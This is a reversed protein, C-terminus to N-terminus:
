PEPLRGGVFQVVGALRQRINAFGREQLARVIEEGEFMRMGSLREVIPKVPPPTVKRRVSTMLAIRGGPRLVRRMEGLGALPDAFLHLAAFCCVADFVADHFPLEAADGRILALNSVLREPERGSGPSTEEGTQRGPESSPGHPVLEAVGRELMTRSADIGIVLGEDGVVRAFERSFNGPGCAVDLVVDGPSLGLLLRAIREEEAMGPGTLGKAMRALAPRWYREYIAPVLSTTMLDQTTGTSELDEALLDLYGRKAAQPREAIARADPTLLERARQLGLQESGAAGVGSPHWPQNRV